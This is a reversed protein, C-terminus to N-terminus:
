GGACLPASCVSGGGPPDLAAPAAAAVVCGAAARAALASGSPKSRRAADGFQSDLPAGYMVPPPGPPQGTATDETGSGAGPSGCGHSKSIASASRAGTGLRCSM